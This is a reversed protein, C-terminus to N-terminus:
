DKKLNEIKKIFKNNTEKYKKNLTKEESDEIGDIYKKIKGLESRISQFTEKVKAIDMLSQPDDEYKLTQVNIKDLYIGIVDLYKEIYKIMIQKYKANLNTKNEDEGRKDINTKIVTLEFYIEELSGIAEIIVGFETSMDFEKSEEMVYNLEDPNTTSIGDILNKQKEM